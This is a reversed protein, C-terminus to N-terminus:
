SFMKLLNRYQSNQTQQTATKQFDNIGQGLFQMPVGALKMNMLEGQMSTKSDMMNARTNIADAQSDMRGQQMDMQNMLMPLKTAITSAFAQRRAPDKENNMFSAATQYMGALNGQKDIQKSKVDSNILHDEINIQDAGKILGATGVGVNYAAPLYPLYKELGKPEPFYNTPQYNGPQSNQLNGFGTNPMQMNSNFSNFSNAGPISSFGPLQMNPASGGISSPMQMLMGPQAKLYSGGNMMRPEITKRGEYMGQSNKIPLSMGRDMNSYAGPNMGPMLQSNFGLGYMSSSIGEPAMGTINNKAYNIMPPETYQMGSKANMYQMGRKATRDSRANNNMSQQKQFLNQNESMLMNLELEGSQKTIRDNSKIKEKAKNIKVQLSERDAAFTNGTDPNKLYQSYIKSEGGSSEIPVGNKSHPENGMVKVVNDGLSKLPAKPNYSRTGGEEFEIIEGSEVEVDGRMLGGQKMTQPNNETFIGAVNQIANSNAFNQMFDGGFLSAMQGIQSGRMSQPDTSIDKTVGASELGSGIAQGAMQIGTGVGPAVINLAAPAASGIASGVTEGLNGVTEGFKTKYGFKEDIGFDTGMISEFPSAATNLAAVGFDRIGQGVKKFFGGKAYNPVGYNMGGYGYNNYKMNKNKITSGGQLFGELPLGSKEYSQLFQDWNTENKLNPAATIGAIRTNDAQSSIEPRVPDPLDYEVYEKKNEVAKPEQKIPAAETFDYRGQDNFKMQPYLGPETPPTYNETYGLINNNFKNWDEQRGGFDKISGGTIEGFFRNTRWSKNNKYAQTGKEIVVDDEEAGIADPYAVSTYIDGAKGKSSTGEGYHSGRFKDGLYLDMLDLQQLENMKAIDDMYFRQKGKQYGKDNKFSYQEGPVLNFKGWDKGHKMRWQETNQLGQPWSEYSNIDRYDAGDFEPMIQFLGIASSNSGKQQPSFSGATEKYITYVIESPSVNYKQSMQYIKDRVGPKNMFEKVRNDDDTFFEKKTFPKLNEGGKNKRSM